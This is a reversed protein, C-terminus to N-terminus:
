YRLRAFASALDAAAARLCAIRPAAGAEDLGSDTLGLTLSAVPVPTPVAVGLAVIGPV